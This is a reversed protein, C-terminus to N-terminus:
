SLAGKYGNVFGPQMPVAANRPTGCKYCTKRVPWCGQAARLTCSWEGPIVPRAGAVFRGPMIEWSDRSIVILQLRVGCGTNYFLQEPVGSLESELQNLEGNTSGGRVRLCRSHGTLLVVFVSFEDGPLSCSFASVLDGIVPNERKKDCAGLTLTTGPGLEGSLMDLIVDVPLTM